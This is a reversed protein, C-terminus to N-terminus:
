LLWDSLTGPAAPAGLDGMSAPYGPLGLKDYLSSPLLGVVLTNPTTASSVIHDATHAGTTAAVADLPAVVTTAPTAAWLAASTVADHRDM